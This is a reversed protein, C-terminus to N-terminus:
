SLSGRTNFDAEDHKENGSNNHANYFLEPDALFANLCSETCFYVTRGCYRAHPFYQPDTNCFVRGCLTTFNGQVLVAKEQVNLRGAEGCDKHM